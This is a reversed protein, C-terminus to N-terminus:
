IQQGSSFISDGAIKIKGEGALFRIVQIIKEQPFDPLMNTLQAIKLGSDGLKEFIEESIKNFTYNNLGDKRKSLCVDCQGCDKANKEGFYQLLLKSRCVEKRKCYEL